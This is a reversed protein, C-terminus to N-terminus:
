KSTRKVWLGNAPRAGKGFRTEYAERVALELVPGEKLGQYVALEKIMECCDLSLFYNKRSQRLYNGEQKKPM